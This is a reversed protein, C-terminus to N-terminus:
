SSGGNGSNTNQNNTNGGSTSGSSNPAALIVTTNQGGRWKFLYDLNYKNYDDKTSEFGNGRDLMVVHHSSDGVVQCPINAENNFRYYLYASMGYCDFHM